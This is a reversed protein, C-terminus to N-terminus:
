ARKAQTGDNLVSKGVVVTLPIAEPKYFEDDPWSQVRVRRGYKASSHAAISIARARSANLVVWRGSTGVEPFTGNDREVTLIHRM